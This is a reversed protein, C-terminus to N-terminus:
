LVKISYLKAALTNSYEWVCPDDVLEPNPFRKVPLILIEEKVGYGTFYRWYADTTYTRETLKM